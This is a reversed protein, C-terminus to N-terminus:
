NFIAFLLLKAVLLVLLAVVLLWGWFIVNQWVALLWGLLGEPRPRYDYAQKLLAYTSWSGASLSLTLLWWVADTQPQIVPLLISGLFLGTGLYGFPAHWKALPELASFVRQKLRM